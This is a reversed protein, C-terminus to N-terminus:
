AEELLRLVDVYGKEAAIDAPSKGMADRLHPLAGAKLLSPVLESMNKKECLIYCMLKYKVLWMYGTCYLM